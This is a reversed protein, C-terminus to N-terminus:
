KIVVKRGNQIYLGPKLTSRQVNFTASSSQMGSRQDGVRLRESAVAPVCSRKNTITERNNYNVRRGQLDYVAGAWNHITFQSNHISNADDFVMELESAGRAESALYETPVKLLCKNPGYQREATIKVFGTKGTAAITGIGMYTYNVGDITQTPYITQEELIPILLNAYYARGTGVPVTIEIGPTETSVIFGTNAPVINVRSLMVKSGDVFGSAIWAKANTVSSFDLTKSCSYGTMTKGSNLTIVINNDDVQNTATMEITVYKTQANEKYQGFVYNMRIPVFIRFNGTMSTNNKYRILTSKTGAPCPTGDRDLVKEVVLGPINSTKWLRSAYEANTTANLNMVDSVNDGVYGTIPQRDTTSFAADTLFRSEDVDLMVQYYSFDFMNNQSSGGTANYPDGRYNRWDKIIAVQSLDFYQWGNYADSRRFGNPDELTLPRLFRVNFWMDSFEVPSCNDPATVKIYATFSEREGLSTHGCYNLIDDQNVGQHYKIVSPIGNLDESICVLIQNPTVASSGKKAIRIEKNNNALALTYEVGSIGKVKWQRNNDANFTANGIITNPFTFEFEPTIARRALSPFHNRDSIAANIVGDRFFDHLDKIFETRELLNDNNIYLPESPMPSDICNNGGLVTPAESSSVPVTVHVEKAESASQANRDSNLEYWFPSIITGSFDGKAFHMKGAPITLKIYVAPEGDNADRRAYRVWTSIDEMNVVDRNNRQLMNRASLNNYINWYDENGLIWRLTHTTADGSSQGSRNWEEIVTGVTGHSSDCQKFRYGDKYYQQGYRNCSITADIDIEETTEQFSEFKYICDFDEKSMHLNSYLNYEMQSWNIRGEISNSDAYFDNALSLDIVPSVPMPEDGSTPSDDTTPEEIPAVVPQVILFKMWAFSVTEGFETKLEICVIPMRGVASVDATMGSITTGNANVNRPYAIVHGRDDMMLEMHASQSTKNSGLYYDVLHIEYHLGLHDLDEGRFLFCKTYPVSADSDALGQRVSSNHNILLITDVVTESADVWHTELVETIDFSCDYNVTHTATTTALALYSFNRHLHPSHVEGNNKGIVDKHYNANDRYNFTRDCILLQTSVVEASNADVDAPLTVRQGTRQFYHYNDCMKEKWLKFVYDNASASTTVTMPALFTLFCLTRLLYIKTKM